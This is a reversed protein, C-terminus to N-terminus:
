SDSNPMVRGAETHWVTVKPVIKKRNLRVGIFPLIRVAICENSFAAKPSLISIYISRKAKM